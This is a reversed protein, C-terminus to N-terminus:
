LNKNGNRGEETIMRIKEFLKNVDTGRIDAESYYELEKLMKNNFDFLNEDRLVNNNQEFLSQLGQSQKIKIPLFPIKVAIRYLLSQWTLVFPKKKYVDFIEKSVISNEFFTILNQDGIKKKLDKLEQLSYALVYKKFYYPDEELNMKRRKFSEAEIKGDTEWLVLMSLNKDLSTSGCMKKCEEFFVSQKALLNDVDEKLVVWYDEISKRYFFYGNKIEQAQFDYASFLTKITDLM